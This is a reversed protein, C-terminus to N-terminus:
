RMGRLMAARSSVHAIRALKRERIDAAALMLVLNAMAGGMVVVVWGMAFVLANSVIESM